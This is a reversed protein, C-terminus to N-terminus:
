FHDYGPIIWHCMNLLDSHLLMKQDINWYKLLWAMQTTCLELAELAWDVDEIIWTLSTSGMETADWIMNARQLGNRKRVIRDYEDGRM